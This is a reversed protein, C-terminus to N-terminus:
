IFECVVSPRWESARTVACHVTAAHAAALGKEVRLIGRETWRSGPDRVCSAFICAQMVRLIVFSSSSLLLKGGGKGKKPIPDIFSQGNSAKFM